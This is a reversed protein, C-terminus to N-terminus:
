AILELIMGASWTKMDTLSDQTIWLRIFNWIFLLFSAQRNANVSIEWKFILSYCKAINAESRIVVIDPSLATVGHYLPMLHHVLGLVQVKVYIEMIWFLLSANRIITQVSKGLKLCINVTRKYTCFIFLLINYTLFYDYYGTILIWSVGSNM